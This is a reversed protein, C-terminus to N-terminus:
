NIFLLKTTHTQSGDPSTCFVLYVGTKVRVGDFNVCNWIAQGGLAITHYVLDGSIDTIKVDSNAALGSIAVNGSYSHPIPNPYAYVNGFLNGGETATGRYSVLGQDTGMFVEGNNPNIAICTINNSLLPSNTANFNSIQQTGDASMLFAGGGLTGIWKRNAGDIAISTVTQSQMLYQTYGNQIVYVSQADWDHNGDLVNDPSYFVVVQQDTGVWISGNKDEVMCYINLSPLAGHGAGNTILVSNSANPAAFTGNDQYVLIGVGPVILWKAGSQTVLVQTAWNGYNLFATFDLAQWTGNKKRVGLYKSDQLPTAANSVWLNGLTDFAAGGNKVGSGTSVPQLAGNTNTTDYVATINPLNYEITGSLWTGAFAHAPNNPDIAICSIDVLSSTPDIMRYWTNDYLVCTGVTHVYDNGFGGPNAYGGPAVWLNNNSTAVSFVDNSYPGPPYYKQGEGLSNIEVLGYYLDSIWINMGADVIADTPALSNGSFGTADQVLVNSSNIVKVDSQTTIVLYGNCSELANVTATGQLYSYRSWQGNVYQYITDQLSSGLSLLKSYSAYITNGVTTIANYKGPALVKNTVKQWNLYYSLNVNPNNIVAKYIGKDTAAFISDNYITVAHVNLESGGPGIYFTNTIVNQTLDIQLIGIGCSVFASNNYFYVDNIIKNGQVEINTKLDSINTVQGNADIDMNGNSYGVFLLSGSPTPKAITTGVDSLGTVKNYRELSNDQTNYSFAGKLATCYILNQGQSVRSCQNYSLYDKWQGVGVNQADVLATAMTVISAIFLPRLFRMLSIIHLILLNIADKNYM